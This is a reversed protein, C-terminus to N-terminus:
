NFLDFFRMLWIFVRFIRVFTVLIMPRNLASKIHEILGRKETNKRRM